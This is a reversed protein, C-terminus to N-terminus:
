SFVMHPIIIFDFRTHVIVRANFLINHITEIFILSFLFWIEQQQKQQTPHKLKKGTKRTIGERQSGYPMSHWMAIGVNTYVRMCVGDGGSADTAAGLLQSFNLWFPFIFGSCNYFNVTKRPSM